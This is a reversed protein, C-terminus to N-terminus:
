GTTQPSTSDPVLKTRTYETSPAPKAPVAGHWHQVPYVVHQGRAECQPCVRAPYTNPHPYRCSCGAPRGMYWDLMQHTTHQATLLQEIKAELVTIRGSLAEIKDLRLALSTMEGGPEGGYLKEAMRDEYIQDVASM